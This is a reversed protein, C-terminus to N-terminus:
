ASRKDSQNLKNYLTKLSIGLEEAVKSKNGGHRQMAADIAKMELDRLTSTEVSPDFSMLEQVPNRHSHLVSEAGPAEKRIVPRTPKEEIKRIMLCDTEPLGQRLMDPLDAVQIPFDGSLVLAHEIANALQRVNGPYDYQLLLRYAERSFLVTADTATLNSHFRKTLALILEPLDEKRDKLPPLHIEFTNIRFRLDERFDGDQVMKELNRHTACVVRVDCIAAENEGVKRVEGSELFRLLKAQVGKPLEGIEDLFLTGGNAVEFLGTRNTDAGTFSGKRHGFLESEILTEPLAGCNVAVFPKDARHSKDHIARAVLEKGTGTDGLIVVTSETPAIKDILRYVRRMAESEGVLKREGNGHHFQSMMSDYKERTRNEAIQKLIIELDDLSCPKTLFRVISSEVAKQAAELTGKGTLIIVDAEKECARAKEFTRATKLVALGDAGPMDLDLILVDFAENQLCEIAETGDACASVTYGNRQLADALVLRINREDDALLLRM